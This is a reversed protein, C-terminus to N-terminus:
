TEPARHATTMLFAVLRAGQSKTDRSHRVFLSARDGIIRRQEAPQALVDKITLALEAPTDGSWVVFSEYEPPITPLRTSVVVAGSAMYEILKSPFSYPVFDQQIQRPQVLIAARAYAAALEGAEV